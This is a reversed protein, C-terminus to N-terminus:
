RTIYQNGRFFRDRRDSQSVFELKLDTCDRGTRATQSVHYGPYTSSTLILRQACSAMQAVANSLWWGYKMPYIITAEQQDLLWIPKTRSIDLGSISETNNIDGRFRGFDNDDVEPANFFNIKSCLWPLPLVCVSLHSLFKSVLSPAAAFVSVLRHLQKKTIKWTLSISNANADDSCQLRITCFSALTIQHNKIETFGQM